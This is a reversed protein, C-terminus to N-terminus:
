SKVQARLAPIQPRGWDVLTDTHLGRAQSRALRGAFGRHRTWALLAGRLARFMLIVALVALLPGFASLTVSTYPLALPTHAWAAASLCVFITSLLPGNFGLNRKMLAHRQLPLARRCNIWTLPILLATPLFMWLASFRLSTVMLCSTIIMNYIHIAYTGFPLHPTEHHYEPDCAAILDHEDERRLYLDRYSRAAQAADGLQLTAEELTLGDEHAAKLHDRIEASLMDQVPAALGATAIETWTQAPAPLHESQVNM